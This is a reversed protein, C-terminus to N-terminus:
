HLTFTHFHLFSSSEQESFIQKCFGLPEANDLNGVVTMHYSSYKVRRLYWDAKVDSM